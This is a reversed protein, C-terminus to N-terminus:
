ETGFVATLISSVISIIIAGLLAAGFGDIYIGAGLVTRSLRSALELLVANIVLYFLGLTVVTVPLGVLQLIPKISVNVLALVLACALPGIWPGGVSFIGPVLNIAAVVAVFTILWRLIFRM